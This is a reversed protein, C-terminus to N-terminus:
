STIEKVAREVARDLRSRLAPTFRPSDLRVGYQHPRLDYVGGGRVPLEDVREVRIRRKRDRVVLLPEVWEGDLVCQVAGIVVGRRQRPVPFPKYAVVVVRTAEVHERVAKDLQNHQAETLTGIQRGGVIQRADIEPFGDILSTPGNLMRLPGVDGERFVLVPELDEDDIACFAIGHFAHGPVRSTLYEKLRVTSPGPIDKASMAEAEL